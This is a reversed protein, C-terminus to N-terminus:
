KRKITKNVKVKFKNLISPQNMLVYVIENKAHACWRPDMVKLRQENKREWAHKELSDWKPVLLNEKCEIKNYVMCQISILNEVFM